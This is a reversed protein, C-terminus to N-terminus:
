VLYLITRMISLLSDNEVFGKKTKILDFAPFFIGGVITSYVFSEEGAERRM